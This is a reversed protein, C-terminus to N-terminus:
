TLLNEDSGREKQILWLFDEHLVRGNELVDGLLQKGKAPLGKRSLLADEEQWKNGMVTAAQTAIYGAM